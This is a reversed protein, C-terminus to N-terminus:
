ERAHLPRLINKPDLLLLVLAGEVTLGVRLEEGLRLFLRQGLDNTFHRLRM